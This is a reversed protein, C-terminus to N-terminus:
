SFLPTKLAGGVQACNGFASKKIIAPFSLVKLFRNAKLYNDPGPKASNAGIASEFIGNSFVNGVEVKEM